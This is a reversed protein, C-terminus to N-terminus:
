ASRRPAIRRFAERGHSMWDYWGALKASLTRATDTQEASLRGWGFPSTRPDAVEIETTLACEVGAARAADLM